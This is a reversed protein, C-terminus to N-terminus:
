IERVQLTLEYIQSKNRMNSYMKTVSDWLDITTPYCMYNCNIDKEMSNGLWTMVMSNEVDWVAYQPNIITPQLQECTLYGIKRKGRIYMQIYQSWQLYNARNLHITTIQVLQSDSFLVRQESKFPTSSTTNTIEEHQAQKESSTNESNNTTSSNEVM